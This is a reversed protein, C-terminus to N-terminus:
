AARVIKHCAINPPVTPVPTPAASGFTVTGSAGAISDAGVVHAHAVNESNSTLGTIGAVGLGSGTLYWGTSAAVTVINTAPFNHTHLANENGTGGGHSHSLGSLTVPVSAFQPIYATTLTATAAGALTGVPPGASDGASAAGLVFRKRTDPVVLNSGSVWTPYLAALAPYLTAGNTITQGHLFIWTVGLEVPLTDSWWDIGAGIPMGVGAAGATGPPGQKGAVSVVTIGWLNEEVVSVTYDVVSL